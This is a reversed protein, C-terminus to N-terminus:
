DRGLVLVQELVAFNPHHVRHDKPNIHLITLTSHHAISLLFVACSNEYFNTYLISNKHRSLFKLFTLGDMERILLQLM